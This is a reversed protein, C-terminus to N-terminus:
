GPRRHRRSPVHAPRARDRQPSAPSDEDPPLVSPFQESVLKKSYRVIREVLEFDLLGGVYFTSQSGQLAELRDYFGDRMAEAPVHKFYPWRDFSHWADD